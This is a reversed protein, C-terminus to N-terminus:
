LVNSSHLKVKQQTWNHLIIKINREILQSNTIRKYYCRFVLSINDIAEVFKQGHASTEVLTILALRFNEHHTHSFYYKRNQNLPFCFESAYKSVHLYSHHLALYVQFIKNREFCEGGYTMFLKRSETFSRTIFRLCMNGSNTSVLKRELLFM